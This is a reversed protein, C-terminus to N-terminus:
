NTYNKEILAQIGAITLPKVLYDKVGLDEARQIDQSFMASSLVVISSHILEEYGLSQLTDLFELGDMVPMKLDLLILEPYDPKSPAANDCAQIYELAMQGNTCVIIENTIKLEKLIIQNVYNIAADDDVLM